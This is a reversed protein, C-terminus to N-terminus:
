KTKNKAKNKNKNKTMDNNEQSNGLEHGKFKVHGMLCTIAWNM